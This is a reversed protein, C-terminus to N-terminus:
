FQPLPFPPSLAGRSSVSFPFVERHQFQPRLWDTREVNPAPVAADIVIAEVKSRIAEPFVALDSISPDIFAVERCVAIHGRQSSNSSASIEPQSNGHHSSLSGVHSGGSASDQPDITLSGSLGISPHSPFSSSIDQSRSELCSWDVPEANTSSVVRGM